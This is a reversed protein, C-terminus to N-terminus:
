YWYTSDRHNGNNNMQEIINSEKHGWSSYRELSEQGESDEPTHEFEHGDLRHHWGVM